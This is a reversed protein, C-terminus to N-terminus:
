PRRYDNDRLLCKVGAMTTVFGFAAFGALYYQLEDAGRRYEKYDEVKYIGINAAGVRLGNIMGAGATLFFAATGATAIWDCVRGM